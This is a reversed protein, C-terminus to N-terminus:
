SRRRPRSTFPKEEVSRVTFTAEPGRLATALSGAGREDLVVVDPNTLRGSADFDRGTAVRQDGLGVLTASFAPDTPFAADLDWYGASV